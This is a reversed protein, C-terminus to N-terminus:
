FTNICKTHSPSSKVVVSVFVLSITMGCMVGSAEMQGGVAAGNKNIIKLVVLKKNGNYKTVESSETHQIDRHVLQAM